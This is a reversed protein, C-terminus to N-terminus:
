RTPSVGGIVSYSGDLGTQPTLTICLTSTGEGPGELPLSCVCVCAPVPLWSCVPAPQMFM